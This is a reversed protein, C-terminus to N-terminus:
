SSKIFLMKKEFSKEVGQPKMLFKLMWEAAQSKEGYFWNHTFQPYVVTELLFRRLAWGVFFEAGARRQAPASKFLPPYTNIIKEKTYVGIIAGDWLIICM